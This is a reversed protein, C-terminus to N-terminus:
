AVLRRVPLSVGCQGLVAESYNTLFQAVHYRLQPLSGLNAPLRLDYRTPQLGTETRRYAAVKLERGCRRVIVVMDEAVSPADPAPHSCSLVFQGSEEAQSRLMAPGPTLPLYTFHMSVQTGPLLREQVRQTFVKTEQVLREGLTKLLTKRATAM